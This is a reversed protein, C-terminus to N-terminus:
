EIRRLFGGPNFTLGYKEWSSDQVFDGHIALIRRVAELPGPGYGPWVPHGNVVTREVVVYSGVPVMPSYAEFEKVIAPASAKSGLIVLARPESDGVVNRVHAITDPADSTGEVRVLRPHDGNGRHARRVSIVRGHDVLDCISALFVIWGDPEAGTQIIWDPRVTSILEQYVVLDTPARGVKHGLWRTEQWSLGGWFAETFSQKLDDPMIVPQEPIGDPGAPSRRQAFARATMRRSRTRRASETALSGVFHVPKAPGRYPRGRLAEYQRGYEVLKTRRADRVSDNTTTGGHVQHFSGEGLISAVTVTPASALREWFELNTYGGGPTSFGDDFGGVQELLSRPVFLCNSELIGDFWDREGIFHGIEFLRYGDMPWDIETFLEDERGQDYGSDVADPQQGPGVYWQQTAVVAPAYTALGKMGYRLVGPTVVHAGDIMLALNRGRAAAIGRNLAHTPSPRSEAGLDLYRFEPGFSRVFDEGLRQDEDSGNEVVVVEYEVGGLGQQYGRSLSLLTREAERRMNYMVVVVSLDTADGPLAPALPARERLQQVLLGSGAEGSAAETGVTPPEKRWFYGIAGARELTETAGRAHRFGEVAEACGPETGDEVVVFGGANLRDYLWELVTAAESGIGAGLHILALAEVPADSLTDAFRGQLFRVQDDLVGFRAFADRVQNLDAVLDAIGGETLPRTPQGPRSALFRDAVWVRRQRDEHAELFARLYIAAGGRGVGCSVLDGAIGEGRVTELADDLRELRDSGMTAYAFSGAAEGDRGAGAQRMARIRRFDGPLQAVPDRLVEPQCPSGRELCDLLYAIRADHEMYHEDLLAGRLLSLYRRAARDLQEDRVRLINHEFLAADLRIRESLTIIRDKGALTEIGDLVAALERNGALVDEEAVIALGFYIPIVVRRLPRDHEAMFDDLATMVGNRPGGEVEANALGVNLGGGPLLKKRGPRMGRRSYPQRFGEPIQQPEYYLDRRGYPWCVDHLVLVPLSRGENSAAARLLRLENYVTYWNHDGDILALDVAGLHPLVNLSLDRHFVYRGEFRQEHEAPDFAPVPDIVHLEAEPGLADLVLSTNEGRLAGIELIRRAGSAQVVPRVVDEWFPFM